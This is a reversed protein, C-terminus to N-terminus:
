RTAPPQSQALLARVESPARALVRDAAAGQGSERLARILGVWAEVSDPEREVSNRFRPVAADPRGVDLLLFGLERHLAADEPASELALRLQERAEEYRNTRRYIRALYLRPTPDNPRAEVHRRFQEAAQDYDGSRFLAIAQDLRPASRSTTWWLGLAFVLLVSVAAAAWYWPLGRRATALNRPPLDDDAAAPPPGPLTVDSDGAAAAGPATSSLRAALVERETRGTVQLALEVDRHSPTGGHVLRRKVGLLDHFAAALEISILDRQRLASLVEEAALEDPALARLRLDIPQSPDNRLLRRLCSEAGESVRLLADREAETGGRGERLL